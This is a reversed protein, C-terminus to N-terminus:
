DDILNNIFKFISEVGTKVYTNIKKSTKYCVDTLNNEYSTYVSDMYEELDVNKGENVDQEFLIMKEKTLVSRKQEETAYYGNSALFYIALFSLFLILSSIRFIKKTM